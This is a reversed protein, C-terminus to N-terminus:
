QQLQQKLGDLKDYNYSIISKRILPVKTGNFTNYEQITHVELYKLLSDFDNQTCSIPIDGRDMSIDSTDYIINNIRILPLIDSHCKKLNNFRQIIPFM